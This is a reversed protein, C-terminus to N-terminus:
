LVIVMLRIFCAASVGPDISDVRVKARAAQIWTLIEIVAAGCQKEHIFHRVQLLSFPQALFTVGGARLQRRNRVILAEALRGPLLPKLLMLLESGKQLLAAPEIYLGFRISRDVDPSQGFLLDITPKMLLGRFDFWFFLFIGRRITRRPM